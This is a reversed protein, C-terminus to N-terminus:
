STRWAPGGEALRQMGAEHMARLRPPVILKGMAREVVPARTHGFM